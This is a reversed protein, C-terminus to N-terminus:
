SELPPSLGLVGPRRGFELPRGIGHYSVASLITAESGQPCPRHNRPRPVVRRAAERPRRSSRSEKEQACALCCTTGPLARLRAM